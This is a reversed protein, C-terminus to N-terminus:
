GAREHAYADQTHRNLRRDVDTVRLLLLQRIEQVVDVLAPNDPSPPSPKDGLIARKVDQDFLQRRTLRWQPVGLFLALSGVIAGIIATLDGLNM